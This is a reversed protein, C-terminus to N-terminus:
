LPMQAHCHLPACWNKVSAHFDQRTVRLVGSPQSARVEAKAKQGAVSRGFSAEALSDGPYIYSARGHNKGDENDRVYVSLLGWILMM